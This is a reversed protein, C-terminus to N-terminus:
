PRIIDVEHGVVVVEVSIIRVVVHLERETGVERATKRGTAGPPEHLVRGARDVPLLAVDCLQGALHPAVAQAVDRAAAVRHQEELPPLRAGPRLLEVGRQEGVGAGARLHPALDARQPRVQLADALDGAGDYAVVDCHHEVPLAPPGRFEVGV